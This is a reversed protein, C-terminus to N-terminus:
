QATSAADMPSVIWIPERHLESSLRVLERERDDLFCPIVGVGVSAKLAETLANADDTRLIAASQAGIEEFWRFGPVYTLRDM